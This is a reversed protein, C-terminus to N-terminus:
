NGMRLMCYDALTICFLLRFHFQQFDSGCANQPSSSESIEVGHLAPVAKWQDMSGLDSELLAWGLRM